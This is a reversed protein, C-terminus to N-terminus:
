RVPTSNEEAMRNCHRTKEKGIWISYAERLEQRKKPPLNPTVGIAAHAPNLGARNACNRIKRNQEETIVGAVVGGAGSLAVVSLGGDIALAQTQTLLHFHNGLGTIYLLAVFSVAGALIPVRNRMCFGQKPPAPVHSTNTMGRTSSIM